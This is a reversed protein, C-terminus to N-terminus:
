IRARSPAMGVLKKFAATFHSHSSFGLDVALAALDDTDPLREIATRIRLETRYGHLTRGTARRFVRALHFASTGLAGAIASLSHRDTFCRSLLRRAADALERHAPSVDAPAANALVDDLLTLCAEEVALPDGTRRLAAHALFYTRASSPTVMLAGFPRERDGDRDGRSELIADADFAFWECRDGAPAIARRTYVQGRNYIMVVTPDAVVPARGAHQISVCTRPFVLLHGRTPGSDVFEPDTPASVFAGIHVTTSSFLLRSSM